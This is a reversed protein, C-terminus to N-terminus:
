DKRNLKDSDVEQSNSRSTLGFFNRLRYQLLIIVVSFLLVGLTVVLLTVRDEAFSSGLAVWFSTSILGGLLSVILYHSFPISALGAAYSIFDYITALFLRAFLLAQWGGIQHVLNDIYRIRSSGVIKAIIKRGLSKAIWFNISGGILDGLLTYIIGNQLGFLAGSSVKLSAGSLPAIVFTSAKLVVYVLPAWVGAENVIRQLERIDWIADILIILGVTTIIVVIFGVVANHTSFTNQEDDM